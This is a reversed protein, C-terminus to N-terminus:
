VSKQLLWRTVLILSSLLISGIMIPYSISLMYIVKANPLLIGFISTLILLSYSISAIKSYICSKYRFSKFIFFLSFIFLSISSLLPYWFLLYNDDQPLIWSIFDISTVVILILGIIIDIAKRKNVMSTNISSISRTETPKDPNEVSKDPPRIASRLIGGDQDNNTNKSM